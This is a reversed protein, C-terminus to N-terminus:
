SAMGKQALEDLAEKTKDLDDLGMGQLVHPAKTFQISRYEVVQVHNGWPDIFDLGPGSLIKVGAKKLAQRLPEREDVM